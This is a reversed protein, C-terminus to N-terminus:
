SAGRQRRRLTRVAEADKMRSQYSLLISYTAGLFGVLAFVLTFLPTTDLVRDIGFGVLAAVM